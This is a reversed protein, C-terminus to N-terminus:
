AGRLYDHFSPEDPLYGVHRMLEVRETFCDHGLVRASGSTAKLIGM